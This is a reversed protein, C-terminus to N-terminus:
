VTVALRAPIQPTVTGHPAVELPNGTPICTNPGCKPSAVAKRTARATSAAWAPYFNVFYFDCKIERRIPTVDTPM